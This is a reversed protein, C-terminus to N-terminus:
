TVERGAYAAVLDAVAPPEISFFAEGFEAGIMTGFHRARGEIRDLFHKQTLITEKERSKPNYFQSGYARIAKMKTQWTETVDVVLSPDPAYTLMHYIVAQPRHAQQGTDIRALGSYFSADTILRGARSHDPHRDETYPAIVVSPRHERILRILELEEERGRRLGGDGFDLRKRFRAKLIRAAAKSERLRIEPTGRTGMEARTLDVIGVNQGQKVAKAITGGCSLEIDDAHAGFALIDVIDSM